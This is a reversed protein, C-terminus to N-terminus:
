PLFDCHTILITGLDFFHLDKLISLLLCGSGIGIDLISLKNKFKTLSLVQDIILESDPRPILINEKLNFQYKWFDKKGILYAIPKGKSRMKVLDIFIKYLKSNIKKDLNLIVFKRDENLIEAMLIESDLQYTKVLKKKLLFNAESIAERINM